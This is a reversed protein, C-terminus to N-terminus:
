KVKISKVAAKVSITGLKDKACLAFVYYYGSSLGTKGATGLSLTSSTNTPITVATGSTCTPTAPLATTTGKNYRLTYTATASLGVGAPDTAVPWAATVKGTVTSALTLAGPVPGVTDVHVDIRRGASTNGINDKVFVYYSRIAEGAALARPPNYTQNSSSTGSVGTIALWDTTTCGSVLQSISFCIKGGSLNADTVSVQIPPTLDKTYKTTGTLACQTTTSCTPLVTVTGLVPAAKETVVVGTKTVSSVNGAKDSGCLIYSRTGKATASKDTTTTTAGTLTTLLTGTSCTPAVSGSLYRVAITSMGSNADTFAPWSLLVDYADQSTATVSTPAVPLVNDYYITTSKVASINPSAADTGPAPPTKASDKFKYYVVKSGPGGTPTVINAMSATVPTWASCASDASLASNSVCISVGTDNTPSLVVAGNVTSLSKTYGATAGTSSLTLTGAPAILDTKAKINTVASGPSVNGVQDVACVRYSVLDYAGTPDVITGTFTTDGVAAAPTASTLAITTPSTACDAPANASTSRVLYLQKLGSDESARSDSAGTLKLNVVVGSTTDITYTLSGPVPATADVRVTASDASDSVNGASDRFWVRVVKDGEGPSLQWGTKTTAYAEWTGGCETDSGDDDNEICMETPHGGNMDDTGAVTLNIAARGIFKTGSVTVYASSPITLSVATPAVTDGSAQDVPVSIGYATVYGGTNAAGTDASVSVTLSRTSENLGSATLWTPTPTTQDYSVFGGGRCSSGTSAPCNSNDLCSQNNNSGGVCLLGTCTGTAVGCDSAQICSGSAGNVCVGTGPGGSLDCDGAQAVYGACDSQQTCTGGDTLGGSCVGSGGSCTGSWDPCESNLSCGETDNAGGVCVTGAGCDTDTDFTLAVPAATGDALQTGDAIFSLSTHNAVPGVCDELAGDIQIRSAYVQNRPDQVPPHSPTIAMLRALAREPGEVPTDAMGFGRVIAYAAAANATAVSTGYVNKPICKGGTGCNPGTVCATGAATTGLGDCVFKAKCIGGGTCDSDLACGAGDASGGSCEHFLGPALLDIDASSNSNCLLFDKDLSNQLCTSSGNSLYMVSTTTPGQVAGVSVARSLCAPATIGSTNGNNGAAAFTMIGGARLAQIASDISSIGTAAACTTSDVYTSGDGYSLSVVAVGATQAALLGGTISSTSANGSGDTIDFSYIKAAPAMAHIAAALATAHADFANISTDNVITGAPFGAPNVKGDLLGIKVGTTGATNSSGLASVAGSNHNVIAAAATRGVQADVSALPRFVAEKDLRAVDHHALLSNFAALTKVHVVVFPLSGFHQKLEGGSGLDQVISTRANNLAQQSTTSRRLGQGGKTASSKIQVIVDFGQGRALASAIEDKLETQIKSIKRTKLANKAAGTLAATGADVDGVSREEAAFAPKKQQGETGTDSSGKSCSVALASTLAIGILRSTRLYM